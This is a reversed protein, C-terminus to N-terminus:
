RSGGSWLRVRRGIRRWAPGATAVTHSRAGPARRSEHLLEQVRELQRENADLKAATAQHAVREEYLLRHVTDVQSRVASLSHRLQADEASKAHGQTWRDRERRLSEYQVRYWNARAQDDTLSEDPTCSYGLTEFCDALTAAIARAQPAPIFRTWLGPQGQWFHLSRQAHADRLEDISNASIVEAMTRAPAHGISEVLGALTGATDRVLDEYRVRHSRPDKWWQSSVSLLSRARSSGAYDVFGACSPSLDILPLENGSDGDLTPHESWFRSPDPCNNVWSLLSVLTDLPHRSLVVVGFRHRELEGLLPEVPRWHLQVVLRPPADAWPIDEPRHVAMHPIDYLSGLLYRTWTNGSRPTSIIALRLVDHKSDM